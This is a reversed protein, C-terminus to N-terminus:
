VLARNRGSEKVVYLSRDAAEILDEESNADCEPFSAGGVSVTVKIVQDSYKIQKEEIARRISEAVELTDKKNAGLLVVMFEDGGLRVILDGERLQKRATSALSQLIRDGVTHGYTDNVQKFRDIDMMLLGIASNQKISRIFEEHLRTLGFRRNYIGTLPDIAALKQVQDHTMANHLALALSASFLELNGLNEDDLPHSAALLLM